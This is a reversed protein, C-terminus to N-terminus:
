FLPTGSDECHSKLLALCYRVEEPTDLCDWLETEADTFDIRGLLIRDHLRSAERQCKQRDM